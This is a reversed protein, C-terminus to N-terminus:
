LIEMLLTMIHVKLVFVQDIYSEAAVLSNIQIRLHGVAVAKDGAGGAGALGNGQLHQGFAKGAHAYGHEQGVDLAVDGAHAQGSLVAGVHALADDFETQAGGAEIVLGEGGAKVVDVAFLAVRHAGGDRLHTRLQQATQQAQGFDLGAHEGHDELHSVVLAQQQQVQLVQPQHQLVHAVVGFFVLEGVAVDAAGAYASDLASQELQLLGAAVHEEALRGQIDFVPEGGVLAAATEDVDQVAGLEEQRGQEVGGEHQPHEGLEVFAQGLFAIQVLGLHHEEEVFGMQQEVVRGLTQQLLDLLHHAQDTGLAYADVEDGLQGGVDRIGDQGLQAVLELM